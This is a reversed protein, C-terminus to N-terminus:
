LNDIDVDAGFCEDYIIFDDDSCDCGWCNNIKMTKKNM